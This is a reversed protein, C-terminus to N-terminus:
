GVMIRAPLARWVNESDTHAKCITTDRQRERERKRDIDRDRERCRDRDRRIESSRVGFSNCILNWFFKECTISCTIM